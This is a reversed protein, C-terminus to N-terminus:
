NMDYVEEKTYAFVLEDVAEFYFIDDLPIQYIRENKTGSLMACKTLIYNKIDDIEQTIEVYEIVIQEDAKNKIKKINIKVM